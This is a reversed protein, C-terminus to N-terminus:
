ALADVREYLGHIVASQESSPRDFPPPEVAGDNQLRVRLQEVDFPSSLEAGCSLVLTAAGSEGPRAARIAAVHEARVYCPAGRLSVQTFSM